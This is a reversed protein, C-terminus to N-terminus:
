KRVMGPTKGFTAKYCKIFYSSSNFGCADAIEIVSLDTIKLLIKAKRLRYINIILNPGVGFVRICKRHIQSRSLGCLKGLAVVCFDENQYNAELSSILLQYFGVPSTLEKKDDSCDFDNKLLKLKSRIARTM